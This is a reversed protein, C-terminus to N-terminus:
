TFPAEWQYRMESSCSSRAGSAAAAALLNRQLVPLTTRWADASYPPNMCHHIAHAGSGAGVAAPRNMADARVLEVGALVPRPSRTVLGVRAGSCALHETLTTGVQGAGFVVHLSVPVERGEPRAPARSVGAHGNL